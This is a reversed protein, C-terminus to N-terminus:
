PGKREVLVAHLIAHFKVDLNEVRPVHRSRGHGAREDRLLAVIIIEAVGIFFGDREGALGVQRNANPPDATWGDSRWGNRRFRLSPSSWSTAISCRRARRRCASKGRRSRRPHPVTSANRM